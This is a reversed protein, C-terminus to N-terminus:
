ADLLERLKELLAGATFPKHLVRADEPLAGRRSLADFSHGSMYLCRIDPWLAAIRDALERGDLGPMVIDTIVVDVHHEPAGLISLAEDARSAELVNYGNAQLIRRTARRVIEEDEVLLVTESGRLQRPMASARRLPESPGASPTLYVTFLTGRGLGSEVTIGAGSQQVIGYVTSLGLGTGKGQEKTTFFPEFIRVQTAADMGSGTDRVSLTVYRGAPIEGHQGALGEALDVRGTRIEIQGGHEMADRANVVLNLVVQELQGPDILVFGEDAAFSASLEIDEGIVRELMRQMGAILEALRVTRPELMQRRSFALLQRTLAAARVAAQRVEDLDEYFPHRPDIESLVSDSNALIATLLNNFDHAVGGALQGIAEMKQAQRFQAELSRQETVDQISGMAQTVRGNEVAPTEGISVVIREGGDSQRIRYEVQFEQHEQLATALAAAAHGRDDPHVADLWVEISPTISSPELGLIRYHEDSWYLEGKDTDWLWSGLHATREAAALTLESTRLAEEAQKRRTFQEIQEAIDSAMRLLEDVAVLHRRGALALVAEVRGRSGVPIALAVRLSYDDRLRSSAPTSPSSLDNSAVPVGEAWARGSLGNGRSLLGFGDLHDSALPPLGPLTWSDHLRLRDLAEDVHWLFGLDLELHTTLEVLLHSLAEDLSRAKGLVRTVAFQAQQHQRARKQETVDRLVSLHRGPMVNATASFDAVRLTGDPRVVMFEGRATGAERFARWAASADRGPPAIDTSTLGIAQERTRGILECAAPNVDVYNGDDDAIIM